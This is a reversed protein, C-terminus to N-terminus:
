AARLSQRLAAFNAKTLGDLSTLGHGELLQAIKDGAKLKIHSIEGTTALEGDDEAPVTKAPLSIAAATTNETPKIIRSPTLEASLDQEAIPEFGEGEANIHELARGLRDDTQDRPWMKSAQKVCTKLIMQVPDTVWPCSRKDKVWSKWASSRARIAHVEDISMTHTLYDGDSTKVVVYVGRIGDGQLNRAFPDFRHSAAKDVGTLEFAEGQCVVDAQAWRIAGSATALDILGMYSIDLCIKGDRPVAYAQKKAPNLSIGIAAVNVVADIVSQPNGRAIKMAYDSKVLAQIMFGAEKNFLAVNKPEDGGLVALFQPRAEEIISIATTM